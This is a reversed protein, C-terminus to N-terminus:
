QGLPNQEPTTPKKDANVEIPHDWTGVIEYEDEALKNIPDKLLKQALYAAAGVAPGGALAALSLSESIYPTVKVYLHQTETKLDTEGRIRILATPGEMRFDDSRMVGHDINVSASIKDFAFGSSFIDRFDLTLRRPLNQLSLVSFLRGVGPKLKLIQGKRADMQLNGSLNILGFEHPSGPWKLQGTLNAEGGKVIDAYGFRDLTKGVDNITWTLTMRTNPSRIWNHWEGEANLTSEPNSIRLKEISWDENRESALLELRGLKKQAIEFSDAVVDLAPYDEAQEQFNGQTRLQAIDPTASPMILTKLRAIIKGEGQSLWQVD